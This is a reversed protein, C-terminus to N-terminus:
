QRHYILVYEAVKGDAEVRRGVQRMVNGEVKKRLAAYQKGDRLQTALWEGPGLSTEVTMRGDECKGCDLVGGTAPFERPTGAAAPQAGREILATFRIKGGPVEEYIETRGTEGAPITSARVDLVWKGIIPDAAWLSAAAFLFLPLLKM